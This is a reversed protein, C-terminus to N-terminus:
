GAKAATSSLAAFFYTIEILQPIVIRRGQPRGLIM